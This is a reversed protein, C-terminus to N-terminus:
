VPVATVAVTTGALVVLAVLVVAVPGVLPVVPVSISGPDTAAASEPAALLAPPVIAKM